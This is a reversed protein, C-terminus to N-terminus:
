DPLTSLDQCSAAGGNLMVPIIETYKPIPPGAENKEVHIIM